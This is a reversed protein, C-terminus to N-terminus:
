KKNLGGFRRKRGSYSDLAKQLTEENFDPWYTDTVYIESYSLEWLLFNSLRLEGSTRILLDPDPIDPAYLYSIFDQESVPDTRKEAIIKNVADVIEARGGYSLAINITLKDNAATKEIAYRLATRAALPLDGTRGITRLRVGDRMMAPLESSAFEQILGMLVGVEDQPRKWNETSFAYLTLYKIGAKMAARAAVGIQRAGARHGDSRSLGRAEAWRGNGDMIIALHEVM